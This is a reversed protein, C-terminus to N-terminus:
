PADIEKGLNFLFQLQERQWPTLTEEGSELRAFWARIEEELDKREEDTLPEDM